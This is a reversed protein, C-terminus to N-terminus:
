VARIFSCDPDVEVFHSASKGYESCQNAPDNDVSTRPSHAVDCVWGSSINNSICPGNSLDTGSQLESRCKQVCAEKAQITVPPVGVTNQEFFNTSYLIISIAAAIIVIVILSKINKKV